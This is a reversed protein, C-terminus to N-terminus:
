AAEALESPSATVESDHDHESEDDSASPLELSLVQPADQTTCPTALSQTETAEVTAFAVHEVPFTCNM